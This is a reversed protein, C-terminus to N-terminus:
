AIPPAAMPWNVMLGRWRSLSTTSKKELSKLPLGVGGAGDCQHVVTEFQGVWALMSSSHASGFSASHRFFFTVVLDTTGVRRPFRGTQGGIQGGGIQGDTGRNTGGGL